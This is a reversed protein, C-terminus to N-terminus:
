RKNLKFCKLKGSNIAALICISNKIKILAMARADGPISIGSKRSPVPIFGDKGSGKLLLGRSADYRGTMFDPNFSNGAIVADLKGDGDFDGVQISQISSFQAEIPLPTMEFKGNGKNELYVSAFNTATLHTADKLDERSFIGSFASGSFKEYTDFKKKISPLM